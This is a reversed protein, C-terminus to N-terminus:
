RLRIQQSQLGLRVHTWLLDDSLLSRVRIAILIVNVSGFVAKAPTPSSLEKALNSVEIIANLVSITNDPREPRQSKPDMTTPLFRHPPCATRISGFGLISSRAEHFCLWKILPSQNDILIRRRHIQALQVRDVSRRHGDDGLNKM